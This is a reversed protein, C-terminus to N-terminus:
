LSHWAWKCDLSVSAYMDFSFKICKLFMWMDFSLRICKLFMWMDFSLRICKLFMWMDFSLRICKLFMWMDFSFKVCKLFMWMDFSLRICKLFMWMDFSLRICKLFMWMDFSLRICKLFMWMDFSLRICLYVFMWMDLFLILILERSLFMPCKLNLVNMTSFEDRLKYYGLQSHSINVIYVVIQSLQIEIFYIFLLTFKILFCLMIENFHIYISLKVFVILTCNNEMVTCKTGAFPKKTRIFVYGTSEDESVLRSWTQIYITTHSALLQNFYSTSACYWEASWGITFYFVILSPSPTM